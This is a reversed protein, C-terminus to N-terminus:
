CEQEMMMRETMRTVEVLKQTTARSEANMTHIRLHLDKALNEQAEIGLSLKTQQQKRYLLKRVYELQLQKLRPPPPQQEVDGPCSSGSDHLDTLAPLQDRLRRCFEEDKRSQLDESSMKQEHEMNARIIEQEEILSASATAPLAADGKTTQNKNQRASLKPTRPPVTTSPTNIVGVEEPRDVVPNAKRRNLEVEERHQRLLLLMSALLLDSKCNKSSGGSSSPSTRTEDVLPAGSACSAHNSGEGGGGGGDLVVIGPTDDYFFAPLLEELDEAFTEYPLDQLSIQLDPILAAGPDAEAGPLLPSSFPAAPAEESSTTAAPAGTAM